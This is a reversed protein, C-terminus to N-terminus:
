IGRPWSALAREKLVFMEWWRRGLVHSVDRVSAVVPGAPERQEREM